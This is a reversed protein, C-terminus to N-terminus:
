HQHVLVSQAVRRIYKGRRADSASEAALDVLAGAAPVTSLFSSSSTM